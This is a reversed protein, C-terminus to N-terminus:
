YTREMWTNGCLECYYITWELGIVKYLIHDNGCKNCIPGVGPPTYRYGVKM